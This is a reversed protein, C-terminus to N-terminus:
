HIQQFFGEPLGKILIHRQCQLVQVQQCPGMQSQKKMNSFMNYTYNYSGTTNLHYSNDYSM